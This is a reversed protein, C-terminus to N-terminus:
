EKLVVNKCICEIDGEDCPIIISYQEFQSMITELDDFPYRTNEISIYPEGSLHTESSPIFNTKVDIRMEEDSSDEKTMIVYSNLGSENREFEFMFHKPMSEMSWERQVFNYATSNSVSTESTEEAVNQYYNRACFMSCIAVILATVIATILSVGIVVTSSYKKM